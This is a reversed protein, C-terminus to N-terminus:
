VVEDHAEAAAVDLMDPLGVSPPATAFFSAPVTTAVVKLWCLLDPIQDQNANISLPLAERILKNGEAHFAQKDAKSRDTELDYVRYAPVWWRRETEAATFPKHYNSFVITDHVAITSFREEGKREVQVYDESIIPQVAAYSVQSPRLWRADPMANSAVWSPAIGEREIGSIL